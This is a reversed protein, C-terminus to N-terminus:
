PSWIAVAFPQLSDWHARLDSPAPFVHKNHVYQHMLTISPGLFSDRQCARHVPQAQQRTLKSRSVLHRSVEQMKTALPAHESTSLKEREIYADASLEMFVRFLVSAANTCNDLSLRRLESEIARIRADTVRLVCDHPILKDRRRPIKAGPGRRTKLPEGPSEIPVGQGSKASPTVIIDAPLKNAYEIRQPRTYIAKTRTTRSALDNVVWLLAKAVQKADALRQLKGEQVDVGLKSRVEPTGLLRKFSTTPVARRKEASIDGRHQLFDLAQLQIEPKGTRAEFRTKEDAGWRVIGAGENEGTHRLEIWHRAQDRDRALWCEAIEIPASQYEKSLRRIQALTGPSIADVMLDPNELARLAALRRNGELVIYRKPEEDLRMVIPLDAPNLGWQVIDRALTLLKREHHHAIAKLAERQGVNPQSLRPNELDILLDAPSLSITEAM